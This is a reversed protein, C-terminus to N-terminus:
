NWPKKSWVVYSYGPGVSDLMRHWGFPTPDPFFSDCGYSGTVETALIRDVVSAELSARYLVEGGILDVDRDKYSALADALCPFVRDPPAIQTLETRGRSIVVNERGVLKHPLSNWTRAGMIVVHGLTLDRFRKLDSRLEWPIGGRLGIGFNEDHAVIISTTM